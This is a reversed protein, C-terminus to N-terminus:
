SCQFASRAHLRSPIFWAQLAFLAVLLLLNIPIRPLGSLLNSLFMAVAISLNALAFGLLLPAPSKRLKPSHFLTWVLLIASIGVVLAAPLINGPPTELFYNLNRQWSGAPPSGAPWGDYDYWTTDYPLFLETNFKVIWFMVFWSLLLLVVIGVRASTNM